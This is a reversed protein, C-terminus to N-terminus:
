EIGLIDHIMDKIFQANPSEKAEELEEKSSRLRTMPEVTQRSYPKDNEIGHKMSEIDGILTQVDEIKAKFMAQLDMSMKALGSM